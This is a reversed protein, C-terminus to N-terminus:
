KARPELAAVLWHGNSRRMRLRIPSTLWLEGTWENAVLKGGNFSAGNKPDALGLDIARKIISPDTVYRLAAKRHGRRLERVFDDIAVFPTRVLYRAVCRYRGDRYLWTEDRYRHPGAHCTSLTQEEWRNWDVTISPLGASTGAPTPFAWGEERSVHRQILHWRTGHLRLLVFAARSEDGYDMGGALVLYDGRSIAHGDFYAGNARMLSWAYQYRMANGDRWFLLMMRPSMSIGSPKNGSRCDCSLLVVVLDRDGRSRGVVCPWMDGLHDRPSGAAIVASLADRLQGDPLSWFTINALTPLLAQVIPNWAHEAHSCTDNGEMTLRRWGEAVLAKEKGDCHSATAAIFATLAIFLTYLRRHRRSVLTLIM